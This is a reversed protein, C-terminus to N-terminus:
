QDHEKKKLRQPYPVPPEYPQIPPAKLKVKEKNEEKVKPEKLTEVREDDQEKEGENKKEEYKMIEKPTQIEIGSRM